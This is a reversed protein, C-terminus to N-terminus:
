YHCTNCDQSVFQQRHCQVCWGMQLKTTSLGWPWRKTDATMYIKDLQEARGHCTQCELQVKATHRNHRFQVHEPSRHIQKWLVPEKRGWHDRLTRIGALEDYAPAFQAHCGMCVELSPM